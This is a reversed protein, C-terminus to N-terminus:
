ARLSQQEFHTRPVLVPVLVPFTLFAADSFLDSDTNKVLDRLSISDRFQGSLVGGFLCTRNQKQTNYITNRFSWPAEAGGSFRILILGQELLTEQKNLLFSFRNVQGPWERDVESSGEALDSLQIKCIGSSVVWFFFFFIILSFNPSLFLGLGVFWFRLIQLLLIWADRNIVLRWLRHLESSSIWQCKLIGIFETNALIHILSNWSVYSIWFNFTLHVAQM